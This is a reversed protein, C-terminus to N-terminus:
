GDEGGSKRGKPSPDDPHLPLPAWAVLKRMDRVAFHTAHHRWEGHRFIIPTVAQPGDMKFAALITRDRPAAVFDRRWEMLLGADRLAQAVESACVTLADDGKYKASSDIQQRFLTRAIVEEPTM